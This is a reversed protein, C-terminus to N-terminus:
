DSIFLVSACLLIRISILYVALFVGLLLSLHVILHSHFLSSLLSAIRIPSTGYALGTYLNNSIADDLQQHIVDVLQESM